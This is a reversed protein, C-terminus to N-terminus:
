VHLIFYDEDSIVPIIPHFLTSRKSKRHDVMNNQKLQVVIKQNYVVSAYLSCEVIKKVPSNKTAVLFDNTSGNIYLSCSVETRFMDKGPPRSASASLLISPVIVAFHFM